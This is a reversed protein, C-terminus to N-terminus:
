ERQAYGSQMARGWGAQAEGPLTLIYSTAGMEMPKEGAPASLWAHIGPM